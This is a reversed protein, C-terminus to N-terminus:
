RSAEKVNYLNYENDNESKRGNYVTGIVKAQVKELQAKARLLNHREAVGHRVVFVTGDLKGALIQADTVTNVPPADFIILDFYEKLKSIFDTMRQSSLLESPNPPILGSTLIFLNKQYPNDLVFSLSPETGVLFSTLGRNNPLHFIHHLSPRRLDADILLVRKGQSSFVTALNSAITSKGEGSVSSTILITKFTQDFMSFQINTRLTRFEESTLSHPFNLTVLNTERDPNEKRRNFM